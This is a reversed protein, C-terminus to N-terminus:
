RRTLSSRHALLHETQRELQSTPDQNEQSPRSNPFPRRRRVQASTLISLGYQIHSISKSHTDLKTRQPMINSKTLLLHLTAHGYMDARYGLKDSQCIQKKEDTETPIAINTFICVRGGIRDRAELITVQCGNQLLVEACRLGSIGAGVVCVHPKPTSM